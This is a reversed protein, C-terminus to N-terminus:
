VNLKSVLILVAQAEKYRGLGRGPRGERLGSLDKSIEAEGGGLILLLGRKPIDICNITVPPVSVVGGGGGTAM